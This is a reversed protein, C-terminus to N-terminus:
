QTQSSSLRAIEDKVKGPNPIQKFRFKEETGATQIQLDGFKLFTPIVGATDVSMDQIRSLHLESVIHNFFGHQTSDIIRRDTVIWVDLTYMTISYFAASWIFLFWLCSLFFFLATFNNSGIFSSFATGLIPPILALLIFFFLRILVVFPHRRLLLVVKEGKEQGDFSNSSETFISLISKM